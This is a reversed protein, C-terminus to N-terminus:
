AEGHLCVCEQGNKDDRLGTQDQQVCRSPIKAVYCVVKYHPLQIADGRCEVALNLKGTKYFSTLDPEFILYEACALFVNFGTLQKLYRGTEKTKM